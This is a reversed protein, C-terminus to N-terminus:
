LYDVRVLSLGCAPATPGGRARDRAALASAVDASTWKGEGVLVLTGVINRVQHHLFSQSELMIRLDVGDFADYPAATIDLRELTRIPSKAQCEQARFTTFDHTGVLHRAADQMAAIDLPKYRHWVHNIDAVPAARRAVIRYCYLKNKAMFRAHFDPLVPTADVVAILNPRLHANLARRLDFGTLPQNGGKYDLDLHVVQGTAHVGADTRGAAYVAIKQKCFRFLADEIQQQVTNEFERQRQWGVYGTGVYEVILKWRQM